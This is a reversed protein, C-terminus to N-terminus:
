DESWRRSSRRWMMTEKRWRKMTKWDLWNKLAIPDPFFTTLTFPYQNSPNMSMWCLRIYDACVLNEFDPDAIGFFPPVYASDGHLLSGSLRRWLRKKGEADIILTVEGGRWLWILWVALGWRFSSTERQQERATIPDKTSIPSESPPRTVESLITDAMSAPLTPNSALLHSLLPQWIQLSCSSPSTSSSPPRKRTHVTLIAATSVLVV